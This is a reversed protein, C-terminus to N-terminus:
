GGLVLDVNVNDVGSSLVSVTDNGSSLDIAVSASSPAFGHVHLDLDAGGFEQINLTVLNGGGGFDLGITCWPPLDDDMYGDDTGDGGFEVTNGGGSAALDFNVQDFGAVNVAIQNGGGGLSLHTGAFAAKAFDVSEPDRHLGVDISDFGDASHVDLNVMDTDRRDVTLKDAGTGLDVVADLPDVAIGTIRGSEADGDSITVLDNGAGMDFHLKAGVVVIEKPKGFRFAATDDGGVASLFIEDVGEFTRVEGDGSVVAVRDSPQVIDIVNPGDDGTVRLVGGEDGQIFEFMVAPCARHELAEFWPRRLARNRRGRARYGTAMLNIVSM